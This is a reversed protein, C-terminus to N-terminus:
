RVAFPETTQTITTSGATLTVQWKYCGASAPTASSTFSVANNAVSGDSTAGSIPDFTGTMNPECYTFSPSGQLPAVGLLQASVTGSAVNGLVLLPTTATGTTVNAEGKASMTVATSTGINVLSAATSTDGANDYSRLGLMPPVSQTTSMMDVWGPTGPTIAGSPLQNNIFVSQAAIADAQLAANGTRDAGPAAWATSNINAEAPQGASPNYTLGWGDTTTAKQAALRVHLNDIADQHATSTSNVYSLATLMLGVTDTDPFYAADNTSWDLAANYLADPIQEGARALAIISLAQNTAYQNFSPATRVADLYTDLDGGAGPQAGSAMLTIAVKACGGVNRGSTANPKCYDDAELEIEQDMADFAALQTSSLGSGNFDVASMAIQGDLLQGLGSASLSTLDTVNTAIYDAALSAETGYNGPAAWAPLSSAVMMGAAALAVISTKLTKTRLTSNKM